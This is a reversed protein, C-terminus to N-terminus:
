GGDFNVAGQREQGKGVDPFPKSGTGRVDARGVAARSERQVLRVERRQDGCRPFDDTDAQIVAFVDQFHATFQRKM